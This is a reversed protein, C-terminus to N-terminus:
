RKVDRVARDPLYRTEPRAARESQAAPAPRAASAPGTAEAPAALGVGVSYTFLKLVLETSDYPRGADPLEAGADSMLLVLRLEGLPDTSSAFPL